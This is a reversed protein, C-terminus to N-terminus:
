ISFLKIHKSVHGPKGTTSLTLVSCHLLASSAQVALSARAGAGPAKPFHVDRGFTVKVTAVKGRLSWSPQNEDVGAGRFHHARM